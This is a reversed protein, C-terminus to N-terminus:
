PPRAHRRRCPHGLRPSLRLEPYPLVVATLAAPTRTAEQALETQTADAEAVQGQVALQRSHDLGAPSRRGGGYPSRLSMLMVSGMASRNVRMRLPCSALCAVTSTGADPTLSAITLIM